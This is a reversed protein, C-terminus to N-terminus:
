PGEAEEGMEESPEGVPGRDPFLAYERFEGQAARMRGCSLLMRNSSPLFVASLINIDMMVHPDAMVRRVKGADLPGGMRRAVDCAPHSAPGVPVGELGAEETMHNANGIVCGDARRVGVQGNFVEVVCASRAVADSILITGNDLPRAECILELAEELSKCTRLIRKLTFFTPEALRGPEVAPLLQNFGVTLGEANTGTIAGQLGPWTLVLYEVGDEPAVNLILNYRRLPAGPYDPWDLNRAHLLEGDTTAEGWAALQRCGAGQSLSYFLNLFLVDEYRMGSGAALGRIELVDEESLKTAIAAAREYLVAKGHGTTVCAITVFKPHLERIVEGYKRGVQFGIEGASGGVTLRNPPPPEAGCACLAVCLVAMVAWCPTRVTACRNM